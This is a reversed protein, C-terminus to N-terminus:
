QSGDVTVVRKRKVSSTPHYLCSYLGKLCNFSFFLSRASYPHSPNTVNSDMTQLLLDEDSRLEIDSLSFCM